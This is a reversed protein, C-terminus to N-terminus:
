RNNKRGQGMGPRLRTSSRRRRFVRCNVTWFFKSCGRGNRRVSGNCNFWTPPRWFPRVKRDPSPFFPQFDIFIMGLLISCISSYQFIHFYFTNWHLFVVVKFIYIYWWTPYTDFGGFPVVSLQHFRWLALTLIPGLKDRWEKYEHHLYVMTIHNMTMSM